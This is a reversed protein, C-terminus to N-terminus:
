VFNGIQFLPTIFIPNFHYQITSVFFQTTPVFTVVTEGPQTTVHHTESIVTLPTTILGLPGTTVVVLVVITELKPQSLLVVSTVHHPATLMNNVPCLTFYKLNYICYSLPM